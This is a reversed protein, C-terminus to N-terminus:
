ACTRVARLGSWTVHRRGGARLVLTGPAAAEGCIALVGTAGERDLAVRGSLAVGPVFSYDELTVEGAGNVVLVGGSVGPLRV